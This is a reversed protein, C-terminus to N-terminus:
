REDPGDKAEQDSPARPQRERSSKTPENGNSAPTIADIIAEAILGIGAGAAIDSPYHQCRPIQLLAAAAATTTAAVRYEPYERSLAQAVAVAGATHGSPFSSLEKARSRGRRIDGSGAAVEGPRDRDVRHKVASKIKTALWESAFMRVGARALRRNATLLGALAIVGSIRYLPPQDAVDSIAGLVKMARSKQLPRSAKAAKADVKSIRTKTKEGSM